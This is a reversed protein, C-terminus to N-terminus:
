VSAPTNPGLLWDLGIEIKENTAGTIAAERNEYWHGVLLLVAQKVDAPADWVDSDSASVTYGGNYTARYRTPTTTPFTATSNPWVFSGSVYYDTAAVVSWASGTWQELTTLAAGIPANTLQLPWGRFRVIDVVAAAVGYYGGTRKQIAAIAAQELRRLSAVEAESTDDARTWAVLEANSIM